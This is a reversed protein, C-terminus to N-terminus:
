KKLLETYVTIYEEAIREMSFRERVTKTANLGIMKIKDKHNLCWTIKEVLEDISNPEILLGNEGHIVVEPIGGVNSVVCPLSCSMAELLSLPMGELHSPLVFLDSSCYYKQIDNKAGVTFVYNELGKEKIHDLYRNEEENAIPGVVLLVINNNNAKTRIISVADLLEYIGKNFAVRGLFLFTFSNSINLDDRVRKRLSYNAKFKETDIGNKIIKGPNRFSNKTEESVYTIVGSFRFIVNIFVDASFKKFGKVPVKVHFTALTPIGIIKTFVASFASLLHSQQLHVIDIKHREKFIATLTLLTLHINALNKLRTHKIEIINDSDFVNNIDLEGNEYKTILIPEHGHEKLYKALSMMFTGIGNVTRPSYPSIFCIRM